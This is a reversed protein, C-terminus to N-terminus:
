ILQKICRHAYIATIIELVKAKKSLVNLIVVFMM